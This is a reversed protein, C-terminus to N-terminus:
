VVGLYARTTITAFHQKNNRKAEEVKQAEQANCKELLAIQQTIAEMNMMSAQTKKNHHTTKKHRTQEDVLAGRLL